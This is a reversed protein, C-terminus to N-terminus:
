VGGLGGASGCAGVAGVVVLGGLAETAVADAEREGAYRELAAVVGQAFEALVGQRGGSLGTCAFDESVGICRPRSGVRRQRWSWRSPRWLGLSRVADRPFGM